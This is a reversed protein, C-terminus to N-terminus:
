DLFFTAIQWKLFERVKWRELLIIKYDFEFSQLNLTMVWVVVVTFKDKYGILKQFWCGIMPGLVKWLLQIKM